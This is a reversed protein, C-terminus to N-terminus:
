QGGQADLRFRQGDRNFQLQAETLDFGVLIEFNAGSITEDARPIVIESVVETEADLIGSGFDAEVAFNEKGLVNGNRRTVAVWYPYTHTSATGQPGKGFAFDIEITATLPDTEAYRCFLRVDTIEGTYMIDGFTVSDGSLEVIRASEYLSGAPPCPGANQRSDFADAVSGACGVLLASTAMAALTAFNSPM